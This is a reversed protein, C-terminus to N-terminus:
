YIIKILPVILEMYNHVIDLEDMDIPSICMDIRRFTTGNKLRYCNDINFEKYFEDELKLNIYDKATSYLLERAKNPSTNYMRLLKKIFVLRIDNSPLKLGKCDMTHTKSSYYFEILPSLRLFMDYKNKKIFDINADFHTETVKSNVVYIADHKISVVNVEDLKNADIFRNRYEKLGDSKVKNLKKNKQQMLGIRVNRITKPLTKLHEAYKQDIFGKEIFISMGAARIDYEIINASPIFSFLKNNFIHKDGINGM